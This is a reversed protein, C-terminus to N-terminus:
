AVVVGRGYPWRVIHVIHVRECHASRRDGCPSEHLSPAARCAKPEPSPMCDESVRRHSEMEGHLLGRREAHHLWNGPRVSGSPICLRQIGHPPEAAVCGRPMRGARMAEFLSRDSDTMTVSRVERAHQPLSDVHLRAETHQLLTRQWHQIDCAGPTALVQYLGAATSTLASAPPEEAVILASRSAEVAGRV